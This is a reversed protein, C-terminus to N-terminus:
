ITPQEEEKELEVLVQQELLKLNKNRSVSLFAIFLVVGGVFFLLAYGRGDGTGVLFSLRDQNEPYFTFELYDGLPGAILIGLPRLAQAITGRLAMARGRIEEDTIILWAGSSIAYQISGAGAEVVGWIILLILSARLSGVIIGIGMIMGCIIIIKMNGQIKKAIRVALASFALFSVGVASEILGLGRADTFNLVMPPLLVSNMGHIFNSVAFIAVLTVLGKKDKLWEFGELLDLYMNKITLQNKQEVKKGKIFMISMLGILCTIVDLLIVGPLGFFAYIFAGGIPGILISIASASEFLAAVKTVEDKKVIDGFFAGWTSWHAIEFIGFVIAAPILLYLSLNETYALWGVFCMVIAITIDMTIIVKKRSFRDAFVGGIPGTVTGIIAVTFLITSLASARGTTEYIWVGLGFFSMQSGTWSLTQGFWLFYVKKSM